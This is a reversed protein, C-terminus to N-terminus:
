RVEGLMGIIVVSSVGAESFGTGNATVTLFRRNGRWESRQLTYFKSHGLDNVKKPNHLTALPVMTSFGGDPGESMGAKIADERVNIEDLLLTCGKPLTILGHKGDTTSSATQIVIPESPCEAGGTFFGEGAAAKAEMAANVNNLDNQILLGGGTIFVLLWFTAGAAVRLGNELTAKAGNSFLKSFLWIHLPILLLWALTWKSDPDAVESRVFWGAAVIIAASVGIIWWKQSNGGSTLGGLSGSFSPLKNMKNLVLFTILFVFGLIILIESTNLM